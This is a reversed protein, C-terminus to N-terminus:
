CEWSRVIYRIFSLTVVVFELMPLLLDHVTVFDLDASVNRPLIVFNEAM